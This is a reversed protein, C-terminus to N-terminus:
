QGARGSAKRSFFSVIGWPTPLVVQSRSIFLLVSTRNIDEHFPELRLVGAQWLSTGSVTLRELFSALPRQTAIYTRRSLGRDTQSQLKLQLSDESTCVVSNLEEESVFVTGLAYSCSLTLPWAAM